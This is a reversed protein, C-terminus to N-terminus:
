ERSQKELKLIRYSLRLNWGLLVAVVFLTVGSANFALVALSRFMERLFIM